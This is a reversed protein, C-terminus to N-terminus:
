LAAKLEKRWMTLIGKPLTETTIWEGNKERRELIYKNEGLYFAFIKKVLKDKYTDTTEFVKIFAFSNGNSLIKEKTITKYKLTWSLMAQSKHETTTEVLALKGNQKFLAYFEKGDFRYFEKGYKEVITKKHNYALRDIILEEGNKIVPPQFSFIKLM